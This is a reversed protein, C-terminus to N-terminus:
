IRFGPLNAVAKSAFEREDLVWWGSSDDTIQWGNIQWGNVQWGNCFYRESAGPSDDDNSFFLSQMSVTSFAVASPEYHVVEGYFGAQCGLNAQDM